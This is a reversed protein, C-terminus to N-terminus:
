SMGLTESLVHSIFSPGCIPANCRLRRLNQGQALPVLRALWTEGLTGGLSVRVPGSLRLGTRGLRSCPPGPHGHRSTEFARQIADWARPCLPVREGGTPPLCSSSPIICSTASRRDQQCTGWLCRPLWQPFLCHSEEMGEM